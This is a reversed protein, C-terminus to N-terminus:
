KIIDNLLRNVFNFDGDNTIVIDFNKKYEELNKEIDENLFGITIINDYNFGKIMYLDSLSDGILIVNKRSKILNFFSYNKVITEDKNMTHIIPKKIDIAKGKSDWEYLNTIIHINSYMKHNKELFMPITEGVGNSSLIILPIKYNNLFDLFNLVGERFRIIGEDLINKLDNKSLGSQILLDFHKNWWENMTRKKENLSINLNMEIPHYKEFLSKAKNQYETTLYNKDRLISIVSPVKINNVFANTLTRDFDSIVHIKEKGGELFFKKKKEFEQPNLIIVEEVM